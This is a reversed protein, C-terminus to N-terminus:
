ILIVMFNHEYVCVSFADLRPLVICKMFLATISIHNYKIKLIPWAKLFFRLVPADIVGFV